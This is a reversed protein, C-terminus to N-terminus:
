SQKGFLYGLILTIIPTTIKWIEPAKLGEIVLITGYISFLILAIITLGAINSPANTKGGFFKGLTGAELDLKKEEIAIYKSSDSGLIFTM